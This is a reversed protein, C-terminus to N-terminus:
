RYLFLSVGTGGRSRDWQILDRAVESAAVYGERGKWGGGEGGGGGSGEDPGCVRLARITEAYVEEDEEVVGAWRMRELVGLVATPGARGLGCARVAAAYTSVTNERARRESDSTKSDSKGAHIPM